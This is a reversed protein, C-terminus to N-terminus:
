DAHTIRRGVEAHVAVPEVGLDPWAEGLNRQARLADREIAKVKVGPGVL